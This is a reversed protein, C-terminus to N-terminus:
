IYIDGHKQAYRLTIDLFNNLGAVMEQIRKGSSVEMTRMWQLSDYSSVIWFNFQEFSYPESIFAHRADVLFSRSGEEFKLRLCM